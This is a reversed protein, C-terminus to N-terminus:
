FLYQAAVALSRGPGYTPVDFGGQPVIYERDFLNRGYLSLTLAPLPTYRLSADWTTYAVGALNDATFTHERPSDLKPDHDVHRGTVRFDLRNELWRTGLYGSFKDQVPFASFFTPGCPIKSGIASGDGYIDSNYCSGNENPSGYFSGMAGLYFLGADYSFSLEQGTLVIPSTRNVFALAGDYPLGPIGLGFQMLIYNDLETRYHAASLKFKDETFWLDRLTFHAGVEGTRSREAKLNPNPLLISSLGGDGPTGGAFFSETVSPPRWGLGYRGYLELSDLPRLALGATPSTAHDQNDVPWSYSRGGPFLGFNTELEATGTLRYRDHRVGAYFSLWQRYDLRGDVYLSGMLREGDPTSAVGSAAGKIGNVDAPEVRDRFVETGMDASLLWHNVLPLSLHNNVTLGDTTVAYTSLTDNCRRSTMFYYTAIQDPDGSACIAKGSDTMQKSLPILEDLTSSSRYLKATLDLWESEGQLSYDLSINENAMENSSSNYWHVSRMYDLTADGSRVFDYAGEYTRIRNSRSESRLYNLSLRQQETLDFRIKALQSQLQYGSGAVQRLHDPLPHGTASNMLSIWDISGVGHAGASYDGQETSTVGAMVALKENVQWAPILSGKFENGNRWRSFGTEGRLRVGFEKEGKLIDDIDVTRINVQGGLAGLGGSGSLAGKEIDVSQLLETDILMEGNRDGYGSKQFNQRMGDISTNVRGFDQVGRMNISTMPSSYDMVVEVGPTDQFVESANRLLSYDLQERTLQIHNTGTVKKGKITIVESPEDPTAKEKAQVLVPSFLCTVSSVALATLTKRLLM